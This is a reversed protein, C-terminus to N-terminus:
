AQRLVEVVEADLNAAHYGGTVGHEDFRAVVRRRFRGALREVRLDRVDEIQAVSLDHAKLLVRVGPVKGLHGANRWVLLRECSAARRDRTRPGQHRTRGPEM